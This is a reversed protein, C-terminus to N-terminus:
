RGRKKGRERLQKEYRRRNAVRPIQHPRQRRYKHTEVEGKDGRKEVIRFKRQKGHLGLQKGAKSLSGHTGGKRRHGVTKTREDKGM